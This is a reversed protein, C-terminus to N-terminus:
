ELFDTIKDLIAQAEKAKKNRLKSGNRLEDPNVLLTKMSELVDAIDRDNTFNLRPLLSILERINEVLSDRFIADKISLREVMHSVAEKIRALINKTSQTIRNNIESEIQSKLNNVEEADVELRFDDTTSIPMFSISMDFKQRVNSVPPYDTDQFMGNLRRQAEAKLVPYEMIFRDVATEFRTKYDKFQNLFEFYNTVPLLRDGNDGWPLTNEYLFERTAQAMNQIKKLEDEAILIKNFNGAKHANHQREIQKSVKKDSKRATWQNITVNVLLAKESLNKM